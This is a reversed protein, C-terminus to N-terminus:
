ANKDQSHENEARNQHVGVRVKLDETEGVYV